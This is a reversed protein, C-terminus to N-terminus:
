NITPPKPPNDKGISELRNAVTQNYYGGTELANFADSLSLAKTETKGNIARQLTVLGHENDEISKVVWSGVQGDDGAYSLEM